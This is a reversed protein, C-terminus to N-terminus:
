ASALRVDIVYLCVSPVRSFWKRVKDCEPTTFVYLDALIQLGLKRKVIVFKIILIIHM